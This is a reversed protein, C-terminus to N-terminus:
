VRTARVNFRACHGRHDSTFYLGSVTVPRGLSERLLREVRYVSGLVHLADAPVGVEWGSDPYRRVSLPAPAPLQLRMAAKLRETTLAGSM